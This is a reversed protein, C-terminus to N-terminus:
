AVMLIGKPCETVNVMLSKDFEIITDLIMKEEAFFLMVDIDSFRKATGNAMSGKVACGYNYHLCEKILHKIFLRHHESPFHISKTKM